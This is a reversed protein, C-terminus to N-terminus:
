FLASPLPNASPSLCIESYVFFFDPPIPIESLPLVLEHSVPPYQINQFIHLGKNQEMRKVSSVAYALEREMDEILIAEGYKPEIPLMQNRRTRVIVSILPKKHKWCVKVGKLHHSVHLYSEGYTKVDADWCDPCIKVVNRGQGHSVNTMGSSQVYIMTEALKAVQGPNQSDIMGYFPTMAIAEELSPFTQNEVVDCIKALGAPVSVNVGVNDAGGSLFYHELEKMKDFGNMKCLARMYGYFLEGPYPRRCMPFQM